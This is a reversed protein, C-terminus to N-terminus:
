CPLCPGMDFGCVIKNMFIAQGVVVKINTKLLATTINNTTYAATNNSVKKKDFLM